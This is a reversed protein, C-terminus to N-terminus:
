SPMDTIYASNISPRNPFRDRLNHFTPMSGEYKSFFFITELQLSVFGDVRIGFPEAKKTGTVAANYYLFCTHSIYESKVVQLCWKIIEM